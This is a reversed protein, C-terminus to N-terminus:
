PGVSQLERCERAHGSTTIIAVAAMIGVVLPALWIWPKAEDAIVYTLAWVAEAVTAGALLAGITRFATTPHRRTVVFLLPLTLPAAIIAGGMSLLLFGAGCFLVVGGIKWSTTASEASPQRAV